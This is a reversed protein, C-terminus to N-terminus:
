SKGSPDFQISNFVTTLAPDDQSVIERALYELDGYTLDNPSLLSILARFARLQSATRPFYGTLHGFAWPNAAGGTQVMPTHALQEPTASTVIGDFPSGQLGSM